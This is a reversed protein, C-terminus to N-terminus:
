YKKKKLQTNNHTSNTSIEKRFQLQSLTIAKRLYAIEFSPLNIVFPFFILQSTNINYILTKITDKIPDIRFVNKGIKKFLENAFSCTLIVYVIFIGYKEM